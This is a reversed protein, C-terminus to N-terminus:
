AVTQHRYEMPALSNLKEQYREYNYFHIYRDIDANLAEFSDYRKLDYCECKFHSFFSEMPANDVCNGSRSMSRTIGAKTTRYRYEKSTYQSGRDSHLLPRADPYQAIAAALTDMVLPNNNFRSVQYAVISGDYLDRITSLYARCRNGYQLYTVDTVWKRNPAEAEFERDLINEEINVYSTKTCYGNSRRIFSKLGALLM